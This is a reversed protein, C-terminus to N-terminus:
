SMPNFSYIHQYGRTYRGGTEPTLKARTCVEIQESGIIESCQPTKLVLDHMECLSQVNVNVCCHYRLRRRRCCCCRMVTNQLLVKHILKWVKTCHQVTFQCAASTM